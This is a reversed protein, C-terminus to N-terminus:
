GAEGDTGHNEGAGEEKFYISGCHLCKAFTGFMLYQEADWQSLLIHPPSLRQRKGGEITKYPVYDIKLRGYEDEYSENVVEYFVRKGKEERWKGKM